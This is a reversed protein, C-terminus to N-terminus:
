VGRFCGYSDFLRIKDRAEMIRMLTTVDGKLLGPQYHFARSVARTVSNISTDTHETLTWGLQRTPVLDFTEQAPMLAVLGGTVAVNFQERPVPSLSILWYIGHCVKANALALKNMLTRSRTLIQRLEAVTPCIPFITKEIARVHVLKTGDKVEGMIERYISIVRRSYCWPCLDRLKCEKGLKLGTLEVVEGMTPLCNRAYQLDLPASLRKWGERHLESARTRWTLLLGPLAALQSQPSSGVAARGLVPWLVTLRAAHSDHHVGLRVFDYQFDPM